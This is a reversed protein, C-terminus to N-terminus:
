VVVIGCLDFRCDTARGEHLSAVAGQLVSFGPWDTEHHRWVGATGEETGRRIARVTWM